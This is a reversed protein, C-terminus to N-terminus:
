CIQFSYATIQNTKLILYLNKLTHKVQNDNSDSNDRDPVCM